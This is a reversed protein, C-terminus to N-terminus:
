EKHRLVPQRGIVHPPDIWVHHFDFSYLIDKDQPLKNWNLTWGGTQADQILSASANGDTSILQFEGSLYYDNISTEAFKRIIGTGDIPRWSFGIELEVLVMGNNKIETIHSNFTRPSKIFVQGERKKFQLNQLIEQRSDKLKAEYEHRMSEKLRNIQKDNLFWQYIAFFGVLFGIIAIFWDMNHSATDIMQELAEEKSM